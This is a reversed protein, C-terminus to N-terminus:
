LQPRTKGERIQVAVPLVILNNCGTGPAFGGLKDVTELFPSVKVRSRIVLMRRENETPFDGKGSGSELCGFGGSKGSM